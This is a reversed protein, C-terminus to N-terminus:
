LSLDEPTYDTGLKAPRSPIRKLPDYRFAPCRDYADVVGRKVCLIEKLGLPRGRECYICRPDIDKSLIGKL